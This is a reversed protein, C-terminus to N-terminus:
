CRFVRCTKRQLTPPPSRPTSKRKSRIPQLGNTSGDPESNFPRYCTFAVTAGLATIRAIAEPKLAVRVGRVGADLEYGVDFERRRASDWLRRGRVSLREIVSCLLHVAADATLPFRSSESSLLHWKGKSRGCYLVLVARGMEEGLSNLPRSSEIELDVNLFGVPRKTKM